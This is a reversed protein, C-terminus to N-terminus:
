IKLTKLLPRVNTILETMNLVTLISVGVRAAIDVGTNVTVVPVGGWLGDYSTTHGNYVSTDLMANCMNVVRRQNDYPNMLFPQFRVRRKLSPDIENVFKYINVKSEAPYELMCLVSGDVQQLIDLWVRFLSPEIKLHKNFSCFVFSAPLDGCGNHQPTEDEDLEYVPLSMHPVQHAFSNALFSNPMYIFKESYIHELSLPSAIPDTVVYQIYPAGMTGVYEQHLIQVPAPQQPFLGAARVGNNSYGDWDILIHIGLERIFRAQQQIDLNSVDHFYEASLELEKRWDVGRMAERLFRANDTGTTAFIHLEINKRDHNRLVDKAMYMTAKSKFNASSYGVKLRFNPSASERRYKKYDYKHVTLNYKKVLQVENLAHTRAVILKLAPDIPYALSM